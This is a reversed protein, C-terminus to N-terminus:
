ILEALFIVREIELELEPAASEDDEMRDRWAGDSWDASEDEAMSPQEARLNRAACSSIFVRVSMLVHHKFVSIGNQM